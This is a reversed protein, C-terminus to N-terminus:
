KTTMLTILWKCKQTKFQKIDLCDETRLHSLSEVINRGTEYKWIEYHSKFGDPITHCKEHFCHAIMEMKAILNNKEEWIFYNILIHIIQTQTIAPLFILNTLDKYLTIQTDSSEM